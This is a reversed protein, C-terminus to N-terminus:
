STPSQVLADAAPETKTTATDARPLTFRVTTGPGENNEAWIRGGLRDVISRSIALGLGTGGHDRADSSDVQEFRNFIRDLKDPPIGRGQDAIAFEVYQGVAQTSVTVVSHQPSFKIANDLLNILTQQARDGDAQVVGEVAGTVVTVDAGVALLEIQAVAKEILERAPKRCVNMPMVGSHIQEVELIDNILHGLRVSSDLAVTTMRQAAPTQAGLAGGVLLALSGRISTLPTRLEHSVISVFEDKMRDVERRQTIDRFVVVAGISEGDNTTQSATVEVPIIRGDARVYSDEEANSVAGDRIAQTIYCDEGPWPRGDAQPAHFTDHANLGILDEPAYGLVRAAVPNVLTVIGARDVGYIGDAVSTLMLESQKTVTRLDRSRETVQHQLKRRMSQNDFTLSVQRVVVAALVLLWLVASASSLTDNQNKNLDTVAAVLFLTFMLVTGAVFSDERQIRGDPNGSDNASSVGLAIMFYGAVWGLDAPSGFSFPGSVTAIASSFDSVSFLLFGISVLGLFGGEGHGRRLYLLFATTAVVIDIVPVLLPVARNALDGDPAIQPFLTVSAFFLLSGGVIVGDMVIRAVEAPRRATAPFMVTAVVGMVLSLVLCLDSLSAGAATGFATGQTLLLINGLTAVGAAAGWLVWGRTRRPVTSRRAQYVCASSVALGGTLLGVGIAAQHAPLGTPSIVVVAVAVVIALSAPWFIRSRRRRGDSLGPQTGSPTSADPVRVPPHVTTV